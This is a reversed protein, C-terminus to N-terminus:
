LEVAPQKDEAWRVPPLKARMADPLPALVARRFFPWGVGIVLVVLGVIFLIVFVYGGPNAGSEKFLRALAVGLSVLGATVFARRDIVLGVLMLVLVVAIVIFADSTHTSALTFTASGSQMTFIVSVIAYLLAPATSLHLWFAVDSNRTERLPDKLDFRMAVAFLSLAAILFLLSSILSHELIFNSSGTLKSLLSLILVTCVALASGLTAALSLPIRYRWYFVALLVPFPVMVVLIQMMDSLNKLGDPYYSVEAAAIAVTWAATLAVAPLALRERRVLIEALIIIAVFVPIISAIGWIGVLAVIVGITILIDHFGRVFRPTETDVVEGLVDEHHASRVDDARVGRETLYPALKEAQDISIIGDGAAESLVSKLDHM